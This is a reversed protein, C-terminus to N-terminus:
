ASLGMVKFLRGMESAATLRQVALILEKAQEPTAQKRLNGAYEEIGIGRLFDGQTIIDTAYVGAAQVAKRLVAFNVHATIDREGPDWLPDAHQHASLAQLTDGIAWEDDHGYDIVLCMGRQAKIKAALKEMIAEAAPCYEFVAGDKVRKPLDMEPKEPLLTFAFGKNKGTTIGRERWEGKEMIFQRIPLADFFENAMVILPRDQPLDDISDHWSIKGELHALTERQREKLVPSIEVLHVEAQACFDPAAKEAIRWIDATLSGRGPGLEVLAPKEPAGMEQWNELLFTGIIEGFVQSIEPATTFDGRTGFPDRTMYYGHAPHALCLAMYDAVSVPGEAAIKERLLAALGADQKNQSDPHHRAM